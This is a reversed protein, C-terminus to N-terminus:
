APDRRALATRLTLGTGLTALSALLIGLVNAGTLALEGGGAGTEGAAPGGTGDGDGDGLGGGFPCGNNSAPGPVKPCNDRNDPVGNGDNDGDGPGGPGDPGGAGTAVARTESGATVVKGLSDPALLETLFVALGERVGQPPPAQGDNTEDANCVTSVLGLLSLVSNPTGNDCGPVPVPLDSGALNVVQSTNIQSTQGSDCALSSSASNIAQATIGALHLGTVLSDAEASMCGSPESINANSEALGLNVIGLLQATALAFSNQSGSGTTASDAKLLTLCVQNPNSACIADLLDQLGQLPGSATEGENTNVGLLEQGFLAVITIHGNYQGNVKEGRTAGVIVDEGTQSGTTDGALPRVPSPALDVGAVTGQSHPPVGHLPPTYGGSTPTQLPVPKEASAAPPAPSPQPAGQGALGGLVTNVAQGVGNLLDNVPNAAALSPTM